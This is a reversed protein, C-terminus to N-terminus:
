IRNRILGPCIQFLEVLCRLNGSNRKGKLELTQLRQPGGKSFLVLLKSQSFSLCESAHIKPAKEESSYLIKLELKERHQSSCMPFNRPLSTKDGTYVGAQNTSWKASVDRLISLGWAWVDPTFQYIIHSPGTVWAMILKGTRFHLVLCSYCLFNPNWLGRLKPM